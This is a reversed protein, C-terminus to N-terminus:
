TALWAKVRAHKHTAYNDLVLGIQLGTSANNEITNLFKLLESHRRKPLCTGIVTDSCM